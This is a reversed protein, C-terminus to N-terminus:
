RMEWEAYVQILSNRGEWRVARCGWRRLRRCFIPWDRRTLRSAKGPRLPVDPMRPRDLWEVPLPRRKQKKIGELRWTKEM